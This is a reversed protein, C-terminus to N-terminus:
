HAAEESVPRTPRQRKARERQKRARERFAKRNEDFTVRQEPNLLERIAGLQAARRRGGRLERLEGRIRKADSIKGAQQAVKLDKRLQNRREQREDIEGGFMADLAEIEELQDTSLEIGELLSQQSKAWIEKRSTKPPADSAEAEDNQAALPFAWLLSLISAVALSQTRRM